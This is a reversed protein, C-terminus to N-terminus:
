KEELGKRIREVATAYSAIMHDHNQKVFDIRNEKCAMEMSKAEASLDDAGITLSTSKLTHVMIQYSPWDEKEFANQLEKRKDDAVYETLMERYFTEDNMCYGLGSRVNLFETFVSMREEPKMPTVMDLEADASAAVQVKKSGPRPANDNKVPLMVSPNAKLDEQTLILHKPLYWKLARLLDEEMLPKPIYDAFGANLISEKEMPILGAIFIIVPTDKNQSDVLRKMRDFTEPGDMMPMLNDLFILDYHKSRVMELCQSGNLATDIQVRTEKLMGRIVKLNLEADDVALIRAGPAFLKETKARAISIDNKYRSAFDGMPEVNLVMQPISVMYSSGEGFRSKVMIEGGCMAILHKTLNLSFRSGVANRSEDFNFLGWLSGPAEDRVGMGSDKVMIKLNISEDLLRGTQNPIVDYSVILRVEGLETYLIANSLLNVIIQRIRDEDGWLSSPIEPDCELSFHLNKATAKPSVIDFCEKLVSYLDYQSPNLSTEGNEIGAIEQIDNVVSLLNVSAVQVNKVYDRQTDDRLERLLIRSMGLIGNLPTLLERGLSRLFGSRERTSRALRVRNWFTFTCLVFLLLFIVVYIFIGWVLAKRSKEFLTYEDKLTVVYWGGQIVTSFVKYNRDKYSFDFPREMAMMIERALKEESMGWAESSRCNFGQRIEGSSIIVLGDKDMVLWIDSSGKKRATFFRNLSILPFTFTIVSKKDSLTKSYSVIPDVIRSGAFPKGLVTKGHTRLADRYWPRRTPVFGESPKWNNGHIFTGNVYGFFNGSLSDMNKAALGTKSVLLQQIEETSADVAMMHDVVLATMELAGKGQLMFSDLAVADQHTRLEALSIVDDRSMDSLERLSVFAAACVCGLIALIAAIYYLIYKNNGKVKKPTM